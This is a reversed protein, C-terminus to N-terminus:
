SPTPLRHPRDGPRPLPSRRVARARHRAPVAPRRDAGRPQGDLLHFPELRTSAADFQHVWTGYFYIANVLALRTMADVGGPPVLDRIRGETHEEVWTNIALRAAEAAKIYDVVEVAAAHWRGVLELFEDRFPYGAQPWLSNAMRIVLSEDAAALDAGLQWRIEHVRGETLPLHLVSAMQEATLGCAGAHTMTLAAAISYPSFFANAPLAPLQHYLDFAFATDANAMRALTVTDV